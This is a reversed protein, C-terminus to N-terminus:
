PTPGGFVSGGAPSTTSPIVAPAVGSTPQGVATAAGSYTPPNGTVQAGATIKAMLSNQAQQAAELTLLPQEFDFVFQTQNQKSGGASADRMALLLCDTYIYAPTAVTFTGGLNVHQKLSNVLSTIVAMKQAYGGADKVPCVMMMSLRNPQVIIANAAIVQNAFPYKGVDNQILTGGPVVDFQGFYGDYFSADGAGTVGADFAASETLNVISMLGGPLNAAIGNKLLIPSITFSYKFRSYSM